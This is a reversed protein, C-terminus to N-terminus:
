HANTQRQLADLAEVYRDVLIDDTGRMVSLIDRLRQPEWIRGQTIRALRDYLAALNKDAIMNRDQQWTEPYGEPMVRVFHGIRWRKKAPLRALLPDTLGHYDIIHVGPGAHYGFFGISGRVIVERRGGLGRGADFGQIAWYHNPRPGRAPQRLLGCEPYYFRREDNIGHYEINKDFPDTAGYRSTSLLPAMDAAFLSLVLVATAPPGWRSWSWSMSARLGTLALVGALLPAALFRGSMFDGGIRLVYLAYALMGVLFPWGGRRFRPTALAVVAGAIVLPTVPDLQLARLYYWGAQRMLDLPPVGTHLKAYATNPFLFGYYILSFLEWAVLPAAAASIALLTRWNWCRVLTVALPPLILLALDIRNLILAASTLCLPFVTAGSQAARWCLVFVVLLLHTLPNELGSTSFDIFATSSLLVAFGFLASAATDALRFAFLSAAAITLIGNLALATYYAEGTFAYAPTFLFLWLPHTYAQVREAVNWRLGHGHVFNDVTRFTIYADDCVWATQILVYSLLLLGVIAVWARATGTGDTAGRIVSRLSTASEVASRVVRQQALRQREIHSNALGCGLLSRGLEDFRSVHFWGVRCFL